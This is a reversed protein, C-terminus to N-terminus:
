LTSSSSSEGSDSSCCVIPDPSSVRGVEDRLEDLIFNPFSIEQLDWPGDFRGRSLGDVPNAHSDVRDFWPLVDLAIVLRWTAGVIIDGSFVSSSGKVLSSLGAANDIFHIWLCGQLLEPWNHLITLPGIAEIEYIDRSLSGERSWLDRVEQPVRLYGAKARSALPSWVAVGVGADKGEGDSYSIVLPRDMAGVAIPRPPPGELVGLWWQTARWLQNNLNTRGPEYQRRKFPRLMARGFRGAMNTQAFSLQGWVQGALAAALGHCLVSRLIGSLKERRDDCMWLWPPSIPTFTLDSSAGLVRQLQTPPPSKKDPVDWGCLDAFRRWFTYGSHISALPEACLMDDVCQVFPIAALVACLDACFTAFRAFNVPATRGGFLQTIAILYVPRLLVPHWQVVVCYEQNWPALPIQKYAKAFDSAFQSLPLTPFRESVARLFLCWQDLDCPRHTWYSGATSNQEGDLLDDIVRCTREEAGGHMEWIGFRRVSRFRTFGAEEPSMFPGVIMNKDIEDQTKQWAAADLELDRSSQTSTRIHHNHTASNTWLDVVDRNPITEKPVQSPAPFAWGVIPLGFVYDRVICADRAGCICLVERMFVFDRLRAIPLIKPNVKSLLWQWEDSCLASLSELHETVNCRMADISLFNESLGNFAREVNAPLPLSCCVPHTLALAVQLHCEPTLGEPVLQPAARGGPQLGTAIRTAIVEASRHRSPTFGSARFADVVSDGASFRSGALHATTRCVESVRLQAWCAVIARCFAPWYECAVETWARGDPATGQLAIHPVSHNCLAALPLICASSSVLTTDKRWPAGDMCVSRTAVFASSKVVLNQLPKFLLMLSSAPQELQWDGKARRQALALTCATECLANGLRVRDQDHQCLGPLGGPHTSSRIAMSPFRNFALSFTSCPPALHLLAVRGELILGVVISLFLHNLIDFAAGNCIDIPPAVCWREDSFAATLRGTGCFIEWFARKPLSRIATVMVNWEPLWAPVVGDPPLTNNSGPDVFCGLDEDGALSDCDAHAFQSSTPANTSRPTVFLDNVLKDLISTHCFEQVSCDCMLTSGCLPALWQVADCRSCAYDRFLDLTKEPSYNLAGFPNCWLSPLQSRGDGFGCYFSGPPSPLTSAFPNHVVNLIGGM